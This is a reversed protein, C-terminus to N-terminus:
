PVSVETSRGAGGGGGGCCSGGGGGSAGGRSSSGVGDNSAAARLIGDIGRPAHSTRPSSVASNLDGGLSGDTSANLDSLDGMGHHALPIVGSSPGSSMMGHPLGDPMPMMGEHVQGQAQQYQQQHHPGIDYTQQQGLGEGVGALSPVANGHIICGVCACDDGCPCTFSEGACAPLPITAWLFDATSLSQDDNPNPTGSADSPTQAEVPSDPPLQQPQQQANRPALTPSGFQYQQQQQQHVGATAAFDLSGRHSHGGPSSIPSAMSFNYADQVYQITQSNYPHAVCGICQCGPGCTCEHSTGVGASGGGAIFMDLAFDSGQQSTQAAAAGQHAVQQYIQPNLPHNWSGYEEPYRFVTQYGLPMAPSPLPEQQQKLELSSQTNFQLPITSPQGYASQPVAVSGNVHQQSAQTNRNGGCCSGKKPEVESVKVDMEKGKGKIDVDQKVTNWLPENSQNGIAVQENHGHPSKQLAYTHPGTFTGNSVGNSNAMVQSQLAAFNAIQESINNETKFGQPLSQAIGSHSMPPASSFPQQNMAPGSVGAAQYGVDYTFGPQGGIPLQTPTSLNPIQGGASIGAINTNLGANFQAAMASMALNRDLTPPQYRVQPPKSISGSKSVRFAPRAPTSSSAQLRPSSIAPAAAMSSTNETSDHQGSGCGCRQKRPIAVKVGGGGCSCNPGRSPCACLSLPRGPKRVPVM